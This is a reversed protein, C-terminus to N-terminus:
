AQTTLRPRRFLKALAPNVVPPANVAAEFREWEDDGVAFERQDALVHQAHMVASTTLFDTLTTGELEAAEEILERDHASLRFNVRQEKTTAM